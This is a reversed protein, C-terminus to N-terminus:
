VYRNGNTQKIRLQYAKLPLPPNFKPRPVLARDVNSKRAEGKTTRREADFSVRLPADHM